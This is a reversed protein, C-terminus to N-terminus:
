KNRKALQTYIQEGGQLLQYLRGKRDNPNICMVLDRTALDSLAKSVRSQPLNTKESIETPCLADGALATLVVRRHKSAKVYGLDPHPGENM